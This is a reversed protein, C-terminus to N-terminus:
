LVAGRDRENLMAQVVMQGLPNDDALLIRLDALQSSRPEARKDSRGEPIAKSATPEQELPLFLRFSSGEGLTSQCEIKGRL